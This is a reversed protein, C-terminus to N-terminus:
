RLDLITQLTDRATQIVRSSAQYAQQFRLLDVAESDLDVGSASALSSVAGDRIAGQADAVVKRQELAAANGAILNTTRAEFGNSSRATQLAALNSADRAGGTPGAAAIGRPDTLSVAIDTPTAGTAFLPAGATGNLDRGQAQVANVKATFDSAIANLSGRAAAIRQAGEAFGALAG